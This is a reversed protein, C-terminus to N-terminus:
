FCSMLIHSPHCVTYVTVVSSAPLGALSFGPELDGPHCSTMQFAHLNHMHTHTHAHEHETHTLISPLIRIRLTWFICKLALTSTFICAQFELIRINSMWVCSLLGWVTYCLQGLDQVVYLHLVWSCSTLYKAKQTAKQIYSQCWTHLVLM